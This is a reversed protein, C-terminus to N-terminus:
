LDDFSFIQIIKGRYKYLRNCLLCRYNKDRIHAVIHLKFQEIDPTKYDCYPCDTTTSTESTSIGSNIEDLIIFSDIIIERTNITFSKSSPLIPKKSLNIDETRISNMQEMSRKNIEMNATEMQHIQATLMEFTQPGHYNSLDVHHKRKAHRLFHGLRHYTSSCIPCTLFTNPPMATQNGSSDREDDDDEDDEDDEESNEDDESNENSRNIFINPLITATPPSVARKVRKAGM